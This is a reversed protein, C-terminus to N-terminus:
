NFTCTFTVAVTHKPCSFHRFLYITLLNSKWEISKVWDISSSRLFPFQHKRLFLIKRLKAFYSNARDEVLQDPSLFKLVAINVGVHTLQQRAKSIVSKSTATIIHALARVDTQWRDKEGVGLWYFGM